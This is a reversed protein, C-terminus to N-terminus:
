VDSTARLHKTCWYASLVEIGPFTILGIFIIFPAKSFTRLDLTKARLGKFGIIRQIPVVATGELARPTLDTSTNGSM